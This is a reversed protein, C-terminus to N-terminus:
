EVGPDRVSARRMLEMDSQNDLLIKAIAKGAPADPDGAPASTGLVIEWVRDYLQGTDLFTAAAAPVANVLEALAEEMTAPDDTRPVDRGGSELVVLFSAGASEPGPALLEAIRAYLERGTGVADVM